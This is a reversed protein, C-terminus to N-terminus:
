SKDISLDTDLIEVLTENGEKKFNVTLSNVAKNSNRSGGPDEVVVQNKDFVLTSKNGEKYKNVGALIKGDEWEWVKWFCVFRFEQSNSM